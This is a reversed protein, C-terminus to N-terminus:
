IHKCHVKTVSVGEDDKRRGRGRKLVIELPKTTRNEHTYSTSQGYDGEKVRKM